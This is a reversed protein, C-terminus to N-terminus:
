SLEPRFVSRPQEPPVRNRTRYIGPCHLSSSKAWDPFLRLNINSHPQFLEAAQKHALRKTSTLASEGVYLATGTFIRHVFLMEETASPRTQGRITTNEKYVDGQNHCSLM